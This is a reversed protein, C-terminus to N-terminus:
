SLYCSDLRVLPKSVTSYKQVLALIQPHVASGISRTTQALLGPVAHALELPSCSRLHPLWFLAIIAAVAALCVLLCPAYPWCAADHKLQAKCLGSLKSPQRPSHQRLLSAPSAQHKSAGACYPLPKRCAAKLRSERTAQNITADEQM